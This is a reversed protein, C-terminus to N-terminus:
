NDIEEVCLGLLQDPSARRAIREGIVRVLVGLVEVFAHVFHELMKRGGRRGLVLSLSIFRWKVKESTTEIVTLARAMGKRAAFLGRVPPVSFVVTSHVLSPRSFSPDRPTM